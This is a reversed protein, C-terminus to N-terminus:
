ILDGYPLKKIYNEMFVWDPNGDKNAPLPIITKKINKITAPRGYDYKYANKRWVSKIFLATYKNLKFNKPNLIAIHDGTSFETDQFFCLGSLSTEITLVNAPAVKFDFFGSVGNNKETRTIYPYDGYDYQTSLTEITIAGVGYVDFLSTIKYDKWTNTNINKNERANQTNVKEYKVKSELLKIHEEMYVWDPNGKDDIPLYIKEKTIRDNSIERGFNYRYKIKEFIPKLFMAIYKNLEVNWKEKLWIVTIHDSAVFEYDHYFLYGVSGSNSLTMRNKHIVMYDPPAIFNDLGNNLATSSIYAVDGSIQNQVTLRRGRQFDFVQCFDFYKYKKNMETKM